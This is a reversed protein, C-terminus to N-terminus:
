LREGSGAIRPSDRGDRQNSPMHSRLPSLIKSM